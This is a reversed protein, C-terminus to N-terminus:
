SVGEPEWRQRAPGRRGKLQRELQAARSHDFPGWRRLVRWPRGARTSRAGGPLEGNHQALRREVDVSIGVYTRGASSRLLYLWWRPPDASVRPRHYRPRVPPKGRARTCVAALKRLCPLLSAVLM